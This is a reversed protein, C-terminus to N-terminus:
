RRGWEWQPKSLLGQGEVQTEGLDKTLRIHETDPGQELAAALEDNHTVVIIQTSQAASVILRALPEILSRHLSHEPENLAILAPPRPAHLAAILMLYRLTGDSLEATRLPRLMGPQTLAVDFLAGDTHIHLESGPFADDILAGVPASEAEIITQLTAALNGGDDSLRMSRTGVNPRRAPADPDTRLWDHFRWTALEDRIERVGDVAGMDLLSEHPELAGVPRWTEDRAEATGRKRRALLTNSRLIPGLWVAERKIEPDLNFKTHNSQQPLGLDILYSTAQSGVGIRLSVPGSRVTGAVRGTRRAGSLHEPGAWLVSPLGGETALAGVVEGRGCAALLRLAKYLNSKGAGNGGTVVTVRGLPVVVDRLSRYGSVALTTYM